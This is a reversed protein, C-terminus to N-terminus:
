SRAIRMLMKRLENFKDKGLVALFPVAEDQVIRLLRRAKNRCESPPYRSFSELADQMRRWDAATKGVPKGGCRPCSPRYVHELLFGAQGHLDAGGAESLAEEFASPDKVWKAHKGCFDIDCEPCSAVLSYEEPKEAVVYTMIFHGEDNVMAPRHGECLDCYASGLRSKRKVADSESSTQKRQSIGRKSRRGFLEDFVGM